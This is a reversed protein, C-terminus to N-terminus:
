YYFYKYFTPFANLFQQLNTRSWTGPDHITFGSANLSAGGTFGTIVVWHQKGYTDRCGLLVPRGQKLKTYIGNLYGASETVARYHSPWYVNGSATYSLTEALSDPYISKGTRFAEMMAIATTACGIQAMTKGSQAIELNAWREDTQKYNPVKLSVAGFHNSLYQASVYGTKTGHYLVRSWGSSSRLFLVVEGKALTGTKGYSTGPGSRVNLSGAGTTVTVPTGEVITIYDAHCYGYKGKAYEVKWWSGSRSILTIYSGKNLTAVVSAGSSAQSRVNLAGSSTTVAGAKSSLSAASAEPAAFLLLMLLFMLSVTRRIVVVESISKAYIGPSQLM